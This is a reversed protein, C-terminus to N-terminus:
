VKFEIRMFHAHLVLNICAGTNIKYDASNGNLKTLLSFASNIVIHLRHTNKHVIFAPIEIIYQM